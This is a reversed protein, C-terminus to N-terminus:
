KATHKVTMKLPKNLVRDFRQFSDIIKASLSMKTTQCPELCAKVDTKGAIQSPPSIGNTNIFAAITFTEIESIETNRSVEDTINRDRLTQWNEDIKIKEINAM